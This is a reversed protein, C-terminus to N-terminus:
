FVTQVTVQVRNEGPITIISHNTRQYDFLLINSKFLHFAIGSIYRRQLDPYAGTNPNFEDLRGLLSIKEGFHPTPIHVAAFVSFGKQDAATKGDSLLATGGQNGTGSYGQGTFTFYKSEYSVMGTVGNWDPPQIGNTAAKNGKGVVGFISFQLGPVGGPVPRISLRGEFVKNTNQEAAHYGGGNFVALQWSGYRGAYKSNVNNKYESNMSGGLDSGALVGFDASNFVNNRELFMTDQMRFGNIAEEFDLWPMHDLGFEVYPSTLTDNGKWHFKAYLYKARLKVDGTSDLTVDGIFRGTLYPTLDVDAGFYGRKLLFDNFNTTQNPVNSYKDGAEYSLYFTGSPKFKVEFPKKADAQTTSNASPKADAASQSSSEANSPESAYGAGSIWLAALMCAFILKKM